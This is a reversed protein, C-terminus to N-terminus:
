RSSLPVEPTQSLGSKHPCARISPPIIADRRCGRQRRAVCQDRGPQADGSEKQRKGGEAL